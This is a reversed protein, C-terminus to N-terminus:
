KMKCASPIVPTGYCSTVIHLFDNYEFLPRWKVIRFRASVGHLHVTTYLTANHDLPRSKFSASELCDEAAISICRFACSRLHVKLRLLRTNIVPHNSESRLYYPGYRLLILSLTVSFPTVLGNSRLPKSTM